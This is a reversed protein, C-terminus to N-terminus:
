QQSWIGPASWTYDGTNGDCGDAWFSQGQTYAAEACDPDAFYIWKGCHVRLNDVCNQWFYGNGCIKYAHNKCQRSEYGTGSENICASGCGPLSYNCAKGGPCQGGFVSSLERSSMTAVSTIGGGEQSQSAQSVTAAVVMTVLVLAVKSM